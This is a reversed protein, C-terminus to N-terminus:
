KRWKQINKYTTKINKDFYLNCIIVLLQICMIYGKIFVNGELIKEEFEPEINIHDGYFPYLISLVALVRGTTAPNEFGFHLNATVKKPRLHRLLRFAERKIRKWAHQHIESTLFEQLQEKKKILMKIKDCINQFTYKIKEFFNRKKTKAKQKETESKDAETHNLTTKDANSEQSVNEEVAAKKPINEQPQKEHISGDCESKKEEKEVNLKKWLIRVQWNMEKNEYTVYGSILHLLWSFKINAKISDATGSASADGHYKVPVFLVICVSLVLIGLIILLIM